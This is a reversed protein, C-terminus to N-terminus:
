SLEIPPPPPPPPPTIISPGETALRHPPSLTLRSSPPQIWALPSPPPPPGLCEETSVSENLSLAATFYFSRPPQFFSFSPEPLKNQGVFGSDQMHFFTISSHKTDMQIATLLYPQFHVTLKVSKLYSFFFRRCVLHSCLIWHSLKGVILVKKSVYQLLWM